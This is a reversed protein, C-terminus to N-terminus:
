QIDAEVVYAMCNAPELMYKVAILKGLAKAQEVRLAPLNKKPGNSDTYFNVQECGSVKAIPSLKFATRDGAKMIEGVQGYWSRVDQLGQDAPRQAGAAQPFFGIALAFVITAPKIM